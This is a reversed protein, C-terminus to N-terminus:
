LMYDKVALSSTNRNKGEWTRVASRWCVMKNKGVMWGKAAYFDVFRQADIGNRREQCFEEVEELRPPTFRRKKEGLINKKEELTAPKRSTKADSVPVGNQELGPM